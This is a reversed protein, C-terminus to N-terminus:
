FLGDDLRARLQTVDLQQVNGLRDATWILYYDLAVVGAYAAGVDVDEPALLVNM